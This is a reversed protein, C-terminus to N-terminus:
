SIDLVTPTHARRSSLATCIRHGLPPREESGGPGHITYSGYSKNPDYVEWRSAPFIHKNREYRPYGWGARTCGSGAALAARQHAAAAPAVGIHLRSRARHRCSRLVCRASCSQRRVDCTCCTPDMWARGPVADARAGGGRAGTASSLRGQMRSTRRSRRTRGFGCTTTCRRPM